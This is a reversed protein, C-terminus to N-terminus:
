GVAPRYYDQIIKSHSQIWDRHKRSIDLLEEGRRREKATLKRTKSTEKLEEAEKVSAELFVKRTSMEREMAHIEENRNIRTKM